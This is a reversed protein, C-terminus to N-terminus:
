GPARDEANHREARAAKAVRLSEELAAVLDPVTPPAPEKCSQGCTACVLFGADNRAGMGNPRHNHALRM